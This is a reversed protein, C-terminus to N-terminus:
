NNEYGNEMSIALGLKKLHAIDEERLIKSSHCDLGRLHPLENMALEAVPSTIASISMAILIEDIDLAQHLGSANRIKLNQITELIIPSIISINDNIGALAKLTNIVCAAGSTMLPSSKGTIIEWSDLEIATITTNKEISKAKTIDILPRDSLSINAKQMINEMKELSEKNAKGTFIDNKLSFYRRIIEAKASKEIIKEDSFCFGVMNVGMDTPSNYLSKGQIQEFISKLLPFIEIDRNYNIAVEGYTELHFPDIMNVDNLDITASEYALNVSHNLALNHVPFTEFKAYWAKIGNKNEHYLQSLCTAMKGSGPGPATVVVLPKKTKVFENKGFWEESLIRSTDYPYNEIHYHKYFPIQFNELKKCFNEINKTQQFRTIVVSVDNLDFLSFAKILRFIEEYYPIRLDERTKWKEIDDASIVLIIEIKDSLSSLMRIKTDPEFGPLVRSAHFDDFLKGGFELYLKDGFQLIRELIKERQLSIYKENDFGIKM